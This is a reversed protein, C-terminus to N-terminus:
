CCIILLHVEDINVQHLEANCRYLFSRLLQPNLKYMIDELFRPFRQLVQIHQANDIIAKWEKCVLRFRHVINVPIFSLIIPLVPSLSSAYSMPHHSPSATLFHGPFTAPINRKQGDQGGVLLYCYM